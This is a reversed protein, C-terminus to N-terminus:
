RYVNDMPLIPSLMQCFDPLQEPKKTKVSNPRIQELKINCNSEEATDIANRMNTTSADKRIFSYFLNFQFGFRFLIYLENEFLLITIIWASIALL